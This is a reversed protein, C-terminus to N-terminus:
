DRAAQIEAEREILYKERQQPSMLYSPNGRTSYAGDLKEKALSYHASNYQNMNNFIDGSDYAYEPALYIPQRVGSSVVKDYDKKPVPGNPFFFPDIVWPESKGEANKVLILNSVHVKTKAVYPAAAESNFSVYGLRPQVFLKATKIEKQHFGLAIMHARDQCVHAARLKMTSTEPRVIEQYYARAEEETLVSMEVKNRGDGELEFTETARKATSASATKASPPCEEGTQGTGAMAGSLQRNMTKNANILNEITVADDAFATSFLILIFTLILTM